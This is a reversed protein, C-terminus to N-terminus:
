KSLERICFKIIEELPMNKDAIKSLVKTIEYKMYGLNVLADSALEFDNNQELSIEVDEDSFDSYFSIKDKLEM